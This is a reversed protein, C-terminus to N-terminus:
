IEKELFVMEQKAEWSCKEAELMAVQAKLEKCEVSRRDFDSKLTEMNSIREAAAVLYNPTPTACAMTWTNM